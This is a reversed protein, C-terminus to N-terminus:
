GAWLAGSLDLSVVIRVLEPDFWSGSRKRMTEIATRRDKDGAFVDLHQAVGLIRALLPIAEAQLHDPYGAGDWHEDLCYIARACEASMGIKRAIGAGRECRISIVEVNNRKQHLSLDLVRRARQWFRGNPLANVWAMKLGALTPRTWDVLKVERKAKRDDGGLIQSMRAANSSCGIDKLLLAYYLDALAADNLGLERGIRTGLLCCRVAHGPIADETLDLAFSLASVIESLAFSEAPLVTPSESRAETASRESM